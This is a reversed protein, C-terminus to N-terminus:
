KLVLSTELCYPETLRRDPKSTLIPNRVYIEDMISSVVILKIRLAERDYPKRHYKCKARPM